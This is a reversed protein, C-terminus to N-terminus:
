KKLVTKLKMVEKIVQKLETVKKTKKKTSEQSKRDLPIYIYGCVFLSKTEGANLIKFVIFNDSSLLRVILNPFM